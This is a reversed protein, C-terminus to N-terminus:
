NGDLTLAITVIPYPFVCIFYLEKELPGDVLAKGGGERELKTAINKPLIKKPNKQLEYFNKKRLTWARVGGGGGKLPQAM